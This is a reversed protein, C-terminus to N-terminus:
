HRHGTGLEHTTQKGRAFRGARFVATTPRFPVQLRELLARVAPEDPALLREAEGALSVHLNGIAWAVGAVASSPLALPIEVVPEAEQRVVYRATGSQFVTAGDTLPTSLEFGFESGDDARGRWVRKAIALRDVRLPVEPLAEDPAALPAHILTLM